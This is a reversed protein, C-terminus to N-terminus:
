TTPPLESEDFPVVVFWFSEQVLRGVGVGVGWVGVGVGVALGDAVGAEVGVVKPFM